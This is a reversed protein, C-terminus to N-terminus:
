FPMAQTISATYDRDPTAKFTLTNNLFKEYNHFIVNIAIFNMVYAKTESPLYKKIDWFTPDSKGTRQMANWVNGVGWNYSAVILLYDNKLNRCRDKLYRAAVYTSKTLNKREDVVPIKHATKKLSVEQKKLSKIEEPIKLGYERAVNSMIQWYGVAGASSIANANFASELAILVKFETPINHKKFIAAIKPFYKKGRAFTRMLYARRNVSFREIYELTQSENGSLIAPYVVNSKLNTEIKLKKISLGKENIVTDCSNAKLDISRALLIIVFFVPISLRTKM